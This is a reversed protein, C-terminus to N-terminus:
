NSGGLRTAPDEAFHAVMLDVGAREMSTLVELGAAKEDIWGKSGAAKAMDYEGNVNNAVLPVVEFELGDSDDELLHRLIGTQAQALNSGGTGIRLQTM